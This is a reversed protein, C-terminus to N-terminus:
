QAPRSTIVIAGLCYDSGYWLAAANGGVFEAAMVEAAAIRRLASVDGQLAGGVVVGIKPQGVASSCNTRPDPRLFRPRLKQVIDWATKTSSRVSDVEAPDIRMPDRRGAPAQASATNAAGVLLLLPLALRPWPRM